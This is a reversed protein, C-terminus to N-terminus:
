TLILVVKRTSNRVSKLEADSTPTPCTGPDLTMARFFNYACLGFSLAFILHSFAHSETELHLLRTVHSGRYLFRSGRQLLRSVWAFAVWVMSGFIIGSFYPSTTVSETYTPKNLLVRTVIQFLNKLCPFRLFPYHGVHHMGFFEAMALITGTYWPLITLTM